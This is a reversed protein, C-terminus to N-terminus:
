FRIEVTRQPSQFRTKSQNPPSQFRTGRPAFRTLVPATDDPDIQFDIEAPAVMARRPLQGSSPARPSTVMIAQRESPGRGHPFRGHPFRGDRPSLHGSTPPAHGIAHQAGVGDAAAEAHDQGAALYLTRPSAAPPLAGGGLRVIRADISGDGNTDLADVNGDGTTDYGVSESQGDGTLDVHAQPHVLKKRGEQLRSMTHSRALMKPRKIM